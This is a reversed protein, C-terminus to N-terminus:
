SAELVVALDGVVEAHRRCLAMVVTDGTRIVEDYSGIAEFVVPDACPTFWCVPVTADEV